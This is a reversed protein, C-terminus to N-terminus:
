TALTGPRAESPSHPVHAYFNFIFTVEVSGASAVQIHM